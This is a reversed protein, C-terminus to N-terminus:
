KCIKLTYGIQELEAKLAAYEEPTAPETETKVWDKSVATHQGIHAYGVKVLNGELRKNYNLQPFVATIDGDFRGGTWKRFKVLTAM